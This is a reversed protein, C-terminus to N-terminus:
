IRLEVALFYNENNNASSLCNPIYARILSYSSNRRPNRLYFYITNEMTRSREILICFFNGKQLHSKFTSIWIRDRTHEDLMMLDIAMLFILCSKSYSYLSLNSRVSVLSKSSLEYLACNYRRAVAMIDFGCYVSEHQGM